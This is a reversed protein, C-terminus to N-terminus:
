TAPAPMPQVSGDPALLVLEGGARLAERIRWGGDAIEGILEIIRAQTIPAGSGALLDVIALSPVPAFVAAADPAAPAQADLGLDRCRSLTLEVPAVAGQRRAALVLGRDHWWLANLVMPSAWTLLDGAAGAGAFGTGALQDVVDAVARSVDGDRAARVPGPTAGGSRAAIVLDQYDMLGTGARGCWSGEVVAPAAFGADSLMALILQRPHAIALEPSDPNEVRSRGHPWRMTFSSRGAALLEDVSEDLLFYTAILRGDPKLTRAAERLYAEVTESGVHTMVSIMFVLDLSADAFPFRYSRADVQGGSNYVDSAIDIRAFSANPHRPAIHQSAWEIAEAHPDLGTYRQDPSLRALLELAIRGYGCGLDLIRADPPLAPQTLVDAYYRAILPNPGGNLTTELAVPPAERPARQDACHQLLHWSLDDIYRALEDRAADDGGAHQRAPDIAHQAPEAM